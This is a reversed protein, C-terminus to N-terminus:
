GEFGANRRGAGFHRVRFVPDVHDFVASVAQDNLAVALAHPQERAVTM